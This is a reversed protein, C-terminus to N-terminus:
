DLIIQRAEEVSRAFGALAGNRRMQEIFNEQEKSRVGKATKVEVFVARGDSKRVGFLDSFGNPTGTRVPVGTKSYLLGTNIRFIVAIDSVGLRIENQIETEAKGM